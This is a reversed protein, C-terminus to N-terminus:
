DPLTHVSCLVTAIDLGDKAAAGAKRVLLPNVLSEIANNLTARGAVVHLHLEHFKM